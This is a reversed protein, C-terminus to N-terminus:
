GADRNTDEKGIQAKDFFNGSYIEQFRLTHNMKNNNNTKKKKKKKKYGKKADKKTEHNPVFKFDVGSHRLRKFKKRVTV